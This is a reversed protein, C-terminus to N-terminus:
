RPSSSLFPVDHGFTFREAFVCLDDVLSLVEFSRTKDAKSIDPGTIDGMPWM